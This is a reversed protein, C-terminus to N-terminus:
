SEWTRGKSCRRAKTAEAALVHRDCGMEESMRDALEQWDICGQFEFSKLTLASVTAAFYKRWLEQWSTAISTDGTESTAEL